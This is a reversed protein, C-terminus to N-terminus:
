EIYGLDSLLGDNDSWGGKVKVWCRLYIKRGLYTELSERARQSVEKLDEGNQGIIIPKQSAREIWIIAHIRILKEEEQWQEISVTLEYPLEDGLRRMLQERIMEQAVFQDSCNTLTEQDYLFPQEPLYSEIEQLLEEIHKGSRAVTPVIAKPNLKKQLSEFFPLLAKKDKVQDVKNVVVIIPRDLKKLQSLVLQDDDRWSLAEVLWVVVDADLLSAQAMTNMYRNLRKKEARHIGPTDLFIIQAHALNKVGFIRHRTTQPKRSTISLKKGLIYNLLTSKGVNPRGVLAVFGSHTKETM